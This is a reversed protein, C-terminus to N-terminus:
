PVRPLTSLLLGYVSVRIIIFLTLATYLNPTGWQKVIAYELSDEPLDEIDSPPPLMGWTNNSFLHQIAQRQTLQTPLPIMFTQGRTPNSIKSRGSFVEGSRAPLYLDHLHHDRCCSLYVHQFPDIFFCGNQSSNVHLMAPISM